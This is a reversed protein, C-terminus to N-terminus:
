EIVEDARALLIPPVNIGLAKATKLNIVLEFKTPQVVPMDAPKEGNLIRGVYVGVQRMSDPVSADYTMLGGALAYIRSAYMAPMRHRAALAVIHEHWRNYSPEQAVLLAGIGQQAVFSRGIPDSVQVFVIPIHKDTQQLATVALNSQAVIVHPKLDALDQALVRFKTADGSAWRSAIQVNQGDTWGLQQLRDVFARFLPLGLPDSPSDNTGMLVGIRKVREFNQALASLPWGAAAAGLLAVFERRGLGSM